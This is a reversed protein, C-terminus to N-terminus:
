EETEEIKLVGEDSLAFLIATAAEEHFEEAGCNDSGCQEHITDFILKKIQPGTM